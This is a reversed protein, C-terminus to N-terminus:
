SAEKARAKYFDAVFELILREAADMIVDSMGTTVGKTITYGNRYVIAEFAKGNEQAPTLVVDRRVVLYVDGYFGGGPREFVNVELGVTASRDWSWTRTSSVKVQSPLQWRLREYLENRLVETLDTESLTDKPLLVAVAIDVSSIGRFEETYLRDKAAARTAALLLLAVAVFVLTRKQM